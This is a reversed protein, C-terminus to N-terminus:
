KKAYLKLSKLAEGTNKRVIRSEKLNIEKFFCENIKEVRAKESIMLASYKNRWENAEVMSEFRPHESPSLRHIRNDTSRYRVRITGKDNEFMINKIKSYDM